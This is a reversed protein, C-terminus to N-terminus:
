FVVSVQGGGSYEIYNARGLGSVGGSLSLSIMETLVIDVGGTVSFDVAPDNVNSAVLGSDLPPNGFIDFEWSGEVTVSPEISRVDDIAIAYSLTAGFNMVGTHITQAAFFVAASDTYAGDRNYSYSLGVSPSLTLNNSLPVYGTLNAAFNWSRSSYDGVSVQDSIDNKGWTYTFAADFLLNDSLAVAIYPGVGYSHSELRGPAFGAGGFNNDIDSTDYNFSVGVVVSENLTIDLGTGVTAMPGDFEAGPEDGEIHTYSGDVWIGWSPAAEPEASVPSVVTGLGAFQGVSRRADDGRLRGEVLQKIRLRINEGRQILLRPTVIRQQDVFFDGAYASPASPVSLVFGIAGCVAACGLSSLGSRSKGM